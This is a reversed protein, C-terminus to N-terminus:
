ISVQSGGTKFQINKTQSISEKLRIGHTLVEEMAKPVENGVPIKLFETIINVPDNIYDNRVDDNDGSCTDLHDKLNSFAIPKNCGKLCNVQLECLMSYHMPSSKIDSLEIQQKCVTCKTTSGHNQQHNIWEGICMCCYIHQCSTIVPRDVLRLCIPCQLRAANINQQVHVDCLTIETNDILLSPPAIGDICNTVNSDIFTCTSNVQPKDDISKNIFMSKHVGRNGKIKQPRGGKNNCVKCDTMHPLWQIAVKSHLYINDNKKQEEYKTMTRYCTNCFRPPHTSPVDDCSRPFAHFCDDIRERYKVVDRM